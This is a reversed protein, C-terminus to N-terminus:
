WKVNTLRQVLSQLARGKNSIKWAIFYDNNSSDINLQILEGKNLYDAIATKPLHGIGIGALIAQIKQGITQIYFLNKGISFGANRTVNVISTDHSIIRRIKPLATALAERNHALKAVPHHKAIVPVLETQTLAVTRFGKQLPAPGPCGVILEVRDQELAEWGGNLICESIDVELNPHKDLFEALEQFFLPYNFSSEVAIRLKPEWGTAVEKAMDALLVTSNLIKRGEELLFRGAPTLVSRRGQREFVTVGLEEELKQVGYSIASTARDLDEAARAFSGRRDVADLMELAEITIPSTKM